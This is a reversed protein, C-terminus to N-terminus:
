ARAAGLARLLPEDFSEESGAFSGLMGHRRVFAEVGERFEEFAKRYRAAAAEDGPWDLTAGTEAEVLKWGFNAEGSFPDREQPALTHVFHLPHGAARFQGLKAFFPDPGQPFLADSLVVIELSRDADGLADWAADLSEKGGGAPASEIARLCSAIANKGDFTEARLKEGALLLRVRSGAALSLAAFAGALLRAQREKSPDGLRMSASLDVILALGEGEEKRYRKRFLRGLRAFANWDLDRLDDGPAYGRYDQFEVGEGADASPKEGARAAQGRQAQFRVKELKRLFDPGFLESM